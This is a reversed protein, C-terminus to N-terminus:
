PPCRVRWGRGPHGGDRRQLLRTPGCPHVERGPCPNVLMGVSVFFLAAFLDRLPMIEGLIQHSLDSEGVVVGAVFAGLALSLGFFSSAYAMGLAVAATVLIFIERNRLAAVRDFIWPLAWSGLSAVLALFLVARGVAWGLDALLTDGGGALASLLVVLVITGLDQVSSWAFGIQGHESEIEGQEGLTKSLVTSSSNSIVAGFFLAELPRWGLAVGALYGLGITLVVQLLGGLTAILGLRLLDRLSLQVGIAFMLFIIGLDALAQVTALDGVFGPTFPGIAIGALIYGLVVSQRLRTALVVGILATGLAFVLTVLLTSNDM